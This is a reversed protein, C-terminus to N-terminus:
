LAHENQQADVSQCRASYRSLRKEIFGWAAFILTYSIVAFFAASVLCGLWLPKAYKVFSKVPGTYASLESIGPTGFLFIGLKYQLPYIIPITVPNTIWACAVAVPINVRLFYAALGSIVMQAGVTPTLSIFVGLAIGGAISNRSPKWLCPDFLKEGIIRYLMGKRLEQQCPIIKAIKEQINNWGM